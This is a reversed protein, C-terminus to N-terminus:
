GAWFCVDAARIAGPLVPMNTPVLIPGHNRTFNTGDFNGVFYQTASGGNPGGPNINVLLVWITRGQYELPFLDPCEWVGGHAGMTAGFESLKMWEKLNPSGYFMVRDKVALTMIWQRTAAHWLVKPDRFDSIGPNPLVPNGRYKIWTNGDDLSYAISQVERDNRMAPNNKEGHHTFIAVLPAKGNQGFGTTNLSDVVASGSFIYGLSDPYLAIPRHQWHVLNRSTAHGWHMPGWTTGHPYYQYFLHWTGHHYVMGNPDNMWHAPPTFHVQPRHPERYTISDPVQPVAVLPLLLLPLCAIRPILM